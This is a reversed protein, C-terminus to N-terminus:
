QATKRPRVLLIRGAPILQLCSNPHITFGNCCVLHGDHLAGMTPFFGVKEGPALTLSKRWTRYEDITKSVQVLSNYTVEPSSDRTLSAPTCRGEDSGAVAGFGLGAPGTRTAELGEVPLGVSCLQRIMM